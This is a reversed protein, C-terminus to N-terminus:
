LDKLDSNEEETELHRVTLKKILNKKEKTLHPSTEILELIKEIDEVKYMRYNNLPHRHAVLKGSKDWNRLTIKSVGLIISADKITIFNSKESM